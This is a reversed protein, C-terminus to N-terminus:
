GLVFEVSLPKLDHKLVIISDNQTGAKLYANLSHRRNLQADCYKRQGILLIAEFRAIFRSLILQKGNVCREKVRHIGNM